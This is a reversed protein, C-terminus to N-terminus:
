DFYVRGQLPAVFKVWVQIDAVCGEVAGEIDSFGSDAMASACVGGAPSNLVADECYARTEAETM